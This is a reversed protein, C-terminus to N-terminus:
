LRNRGVIVGDFADVRVRYHKSGRKAAYTYTDGNCEIVRVRNYGSRDVIRRGTRCSIRDDRYAPRHYGPNIHIGL